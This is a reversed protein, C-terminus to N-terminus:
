LAWNELVDKLVLAHAHAEDKAGYVLTLHRASRKLRKLEAKRPRLEAKYRRKFETWRKPDHGFWTRLAPSPALDKEWGDLKLKAKTMGRPWLRDVLVRRGDSATPEEYARKLVIMTDGMIDCEIDAQSMTIAPTSYFAHSIDYQDDNRDKDKYATAKPEVV